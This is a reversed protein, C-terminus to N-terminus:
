DYEYYDGIINEMEELYTVDTKKNKLHKIKDSLWEDLGQVFFNMIVMDIDCDDPNLYTELTSRLEEDEPLSNTLSDMNSIVWERFDEIDPFRKSYTKNASELWKNINIKDTVFPCGTLLEKMTREIITPNYKVTEPLSDLITAIDEESQHDIPSATEINYSSSDDEEDGFPIKQEIVKPNEPKNLWPYGWRSSSVPQVINGNPNGFYSPAAVKSNKVHYFRNTIEDPKEKPVEEKEIALDYWELIETTEDYYRKTVPVENEGFFQYSGEETIHRVSKVRRTVGATYKGENNVILSVFVPMTSGESQLTATDTGSFFTKMHDHSHLLGQYCEFLEMNDAMYASIDTNNFKFNTFTASGVDMLLFDQCIVTLGEEFNGEVKYFLVGSWENNPSLSCYKRIIKEVKATVIIKNKTVPQGDKTCLEIHYLPPCM